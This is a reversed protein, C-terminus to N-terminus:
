STLSNMNLVGTALISGGGILTSGFDIAGSISDWTGGSFSTADLDAVVNGDKRWISQDHFVSYGFGDPDSGDLISTVNYTVANAATTTGLAFAAAMLWKIMM